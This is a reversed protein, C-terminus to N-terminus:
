ELNLTFLTDSDVVCIHRSCTALWGMGITGLTVKELMKAASQPQKAM